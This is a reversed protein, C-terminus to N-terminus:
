SSVAHVLLELVLVAVSPPIVSNSEGWGGDGGRGRLGAALSCCFGVKVFLAKM